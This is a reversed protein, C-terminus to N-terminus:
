SQLYVFRLCLLLAQEGNEIDIVSIVKKM